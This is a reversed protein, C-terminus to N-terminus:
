GVCLAVILVVAASQLAVRHRRTFKAARDISSPPRANISRDELFRHLDLALDQATPYRDSVEKAMAKLIITELDPPVSPNLRRPVLPEDRTIRNLLEHRDCGTFAPHLTAVEYLTAGLSYVDTRHDVAARRAQAQEPSMYRLTGLLDGTRTLGDD